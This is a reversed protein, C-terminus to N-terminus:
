SLVVKRRQWSRSVSGLREGQEREDRLQDQLLRIRPVSPRSTKAANLRSEQREEGQEKEYGSVCKGIANRKNVNTGSTDNFEELGDVASM